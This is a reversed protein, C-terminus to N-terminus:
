CLTPFGGSGRNQKTSKQTRIKNLVQVQSIVKDYLPTVDQSKIYTSKDQKLLNLADRCSLLENLIPQEEPDLPAQLAPSDAM